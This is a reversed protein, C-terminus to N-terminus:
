EGRRARARAAEAIARHETDPFRALLDTATAIVGQHDGARQLEGLVDITIAEFMERARDFRQGALGRWAQENADFHGRAAALLHALFPREGRNYLVTGLNSACVMIEPLGAVTEDQWIALLEEVAEEDAIGSLARGALAREVRWLARRGDQAGIAPHTTLFADFSQRGEQVRGLAFHDRANEVHAMGGLEDRLRPTWPQGILRSRSAIAEERRGSLRLADAKALCARAFLQLDTDVGRADIINECRSYADIAAQRENMSNHIEGVRFAAYARRTATEAVSELRRFTAVAQFRDGASLFTEAASQFLDSSYPLGAGYRSEAATRM